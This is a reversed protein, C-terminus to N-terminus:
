GYDFLFVGSSSERDMHLGIIPAPCVELCTGDLFQVPSIETSLLRCSFIFVRSLLFFETFYVFFKQWYRCLLDNSAVFSSTSGCRKVLPRKSLSFLFLQDGLLPYLSLQPSTFHHPTFLIRSTQLIHFTSFHFSQFPVRQIGLVIRM